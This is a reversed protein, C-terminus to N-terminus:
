QPRGEPPGAFYGLRPIVQHIKTTVDVLGVIPQMFETVHEDDIGRATASVTIRTSALSQDTTLLVIESHSDKDSTFTHTRGPRLEACHLMATVSGGNRFDTHNPRPASVPPTYLNRAPIMMRAYDIPPQDWPGWARPRKPLQKALEHAKPSYPRAHQIVPGEIHVKLELGELFRGCTNTIAFSAPPLWLALLDLVLGDFSDRVRGEWDDVEARFEDETRNEEHRTGMGAGQLWGLGSIASNTPFLAHFPGPGEVTARTPQPLQSLYNRTEWDLVPELIAPDWAYRTIAEQNMAFDIQFDRTRGVVRRSLMDISAPDAPESATSPRAFITGPLHREFAKKLTYIPDGPQPADVDIILVDKTDNVRRRHVTWRPSREADGLYPEFAKVLQHDEIRTTGTTAGGGAGIVILAHGDLYPAAAQPDRNAFSLIAKSIKFKHEATSLDLPGKLELYTSEFTDDTIEGMAAVLREWDHISRPLHRMDYSLKNM